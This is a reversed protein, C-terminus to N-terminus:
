GRAGLVTKIMGIGKQYLRTAKLYDTTIDNVRSIEQHQDITNGKQTGEDTKVKQVSYQGAIGPSPLIHNSHTKMMHGHNVKKVQEAFPKLENANAQPLDVRSLNDTHVALGKQLYNMYQILGGLPVSTQPM